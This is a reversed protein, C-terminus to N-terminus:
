GIKGNPAPTPKASQPTPAPRSKDSSASNQKADRMKQKLKALFAHLEADRTAAGSRPPGTPEEHAPTRPERAKRASRNPFQTLPDFDDFQPMLGQLGDKEFFKLAERLDRCTRANQGTARIFCNFAARLRQEVRICRLPDPVEDRIIGRVTDFLERAQRPGLPAAGRRGFREPYARELFWAAAQWHTAAAQQIARLPSLQAYLESRSLQEKFGPDRKLERRITDYSCRLFHAADRVSCGASIMGCIQARKFDDLM